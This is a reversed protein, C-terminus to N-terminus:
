NANGSQLLSHPRSKCFVQGKKRGKEKKKIKKNFNVLGRVGFETCLPQLVAERKASIVLITHVFCMLNEGRLSICEWGQDQGDGRMEMVTFNLVFCHHGRRSNQWFCIHFENKM